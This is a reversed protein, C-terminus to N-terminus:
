DKLNKYKTVGDLASPLLRHICNKILSGHLGNQVLDDISLCLAWRTIDLDKQPTWTLTNDLHWHQHDNSLINIIQECLDLWTKYRDQLEFRQQYYKSFVERNNPKSFHWAHYADPHQDLIKLFDIDHWAMITALTEPGRLFYEDGQSGTLFVNPSQWHHLQKYAWFQELEQKHKNVFESSEFVSNKWEVHPVNLFKILAYLFATDLGGSRFNNVPLQNHSLFNKSQQIILNLINDTVQDVTLIQETVGLIKFKNLQIQNEQTIKVTTDAWVPQDLKIFNSIAQENVWLPFSRDRNHGISIGQQDMKILCFNGTIRPPQEFNYNKVVQELPIDYAYGKAYVSGFTEWGLDNELQWGQPQKTLSFFM